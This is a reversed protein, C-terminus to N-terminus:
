RRGGIANRILKSPRYDWLNQRQAGQSQQQFHAPKQQQYQSPEEQYQYQKVREADPGSLIEVDNNKNAYQLKPTLLGAAIFICVVISEMLFQMFSEAWVNVDRFYFDSGAASFAVTVTYIVRVLLLPLAALGAYVLKQEGTPLFDRRKWSLLTIFALCFYMALFLISAAEMLDHGTSASSPNTDSEKVGGVIALILAIISTLHIPQFVFNKNLGSGKLMMSDNLRELFGMLALLLPATGVASTIAACELLSESTDHQTEAYLLCSSGILRLISLLVLYFWGLQRSIGHRFVIFLSVLLAPSFFAIEAAALDGKPTLPSM